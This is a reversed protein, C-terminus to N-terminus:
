SVGRTHVAPLDLENALDGFPGPVGDLAGAGFRCEPVSFAAGARARLTRLRSRSM